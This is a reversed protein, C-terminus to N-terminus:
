SNIYVGNGAAGLELMTSWLWLWTSRIKAAFSCHHETPVYPAIRGACFFRYNATDGM